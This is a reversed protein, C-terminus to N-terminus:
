SAEMHQRLSQLSHLILGKLMEEVSRTESTPTALCTMTVRAQSGDIPEVRLRSQYSSWPVNHGSIMKVRLLMLADDVNMVRQEMSVHDAVPVVQVSSEGNSPWFLHAEELIGKPVAIAHDRSVTKWVSAASRAVNESCEIVVDRHELVM